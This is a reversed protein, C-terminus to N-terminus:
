VNSEKEKVLLDIERLNLIGITLGNRSYGFATQM